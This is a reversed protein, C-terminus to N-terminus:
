LGSTTCLHPLTFLFFVSTQSLGRREPVGSANHILQAGTSQLPALIGRCLVNLKPITGVHGM